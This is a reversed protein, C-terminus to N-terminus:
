GKYGNPNKSQWRWGDRCMEVLGRSAKWNLTKEALTADAVAEQADGDRREVIRYPINRQSANEMEKIVQLVSYGRGTGLNLRVLAGPTKKLFELAAVHGEALDQVHIYDRIGTGDITDWDGGFVRVFDHKGSATQTVYPFLNNPTGSPDEGIEGSEHAGVPNFYRLLAIELGPKSKHMDELLLEATHKTRGYPNIPSLTASEGIPMSDQIGYVTCSSSFVLSHCSYEQMIKAVQVTGGVNVSWYELPIAVSEGVAKLGAFHIVSDIPGRQIASEFTRKLDKENRVDGQMFELRKGGSGALRAVRALSEVSSNSYNDISTVNHGAELLSLCTHSGIYGAGGTVVINMM